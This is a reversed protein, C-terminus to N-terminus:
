VRQPTWSTCSASCGRVLPRLRRGPLCAFVSDPSTQIGCMIVCARSQSKGETSRPALCTGPCACRHAGRGSPAVCSREGTLAIKKRHRYLGTTTIVKTAMARDLETFGYYVDLTANQICQRILPWALLVFELGRTPMSAYIFRPRILNHPLALFRPLDSARCPVNRATGPVALRRVRCRTNTQM